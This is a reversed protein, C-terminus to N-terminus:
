QAEGPARGKLLLDPDREIEDALLRIAAAAERIEGLTQDLDRTAAAANRGVDGFSTMSRQAAAVLGKDGNVRDLVANVKDLTSGARAPIRQRDLGKLFRDLVTLVENVSDMAQVTKESFGEQMMTDVLHAVGDMAKSVSDEISRVQSKAAPVYRAPPPFSLEAPPNSAPDFFDIEVVRTGTLGLYELQARLDPVVGRDGRTGAFHEVRDPELDMRVQVLKGDPAFAIDGVRGLNVGRAKVAAGVDLGTVPEAFYTWFALTEHHGHALGVAIALVAAAAFGLVVLLGIKVFHGPTAM